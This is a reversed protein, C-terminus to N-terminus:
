KSSRESKVFRGRLLAIDRRELMALPPASFCGAVVGPALRNERAPSKIHPIYKSFTQLGPSAPLAALM